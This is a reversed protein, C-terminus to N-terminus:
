RPMASWKGGQRKGDHATVMLQIVSDLVCYESFDGVWMTNEFGWGEFTLTIVRQQSRPITFAFAQLENTVAENAGADVKFEVIQIWITVRVKVCHSDFHM